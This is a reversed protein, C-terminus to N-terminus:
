ADGGRGGRGPARGGGEGGEGRQGRGRFMERGAERREEDSLQGDGDRDFRSLFEARMQEAEARRRVARAERTEPLQAVQEPTLLSELQRRFTDDVAQRQEFLEELREDPQPTDGGGGQMRAAFREIRSTISAAESAITELELLQNLGAIEAAYATEMQGILAQVEPTVDELAAAASFSRQAFTPGYIRRYAAERFGVEYRGIAEEDLGAEGLLAVSMQQYRLNIDRVTERLRAETRTAEIAVSPDMTRFADMMAVPMTSLHEDRAVLARDLEVGYEPWITALVPDLQEGLGLQRPLLTLDVTEGSLRGAPLMRGRRIEIEVAPLMELQGETLILAMEARFAADLQRRIRDWESILSAIAMSSQNRVEESPRFAQAQERIQQIRAQLEASIEARAAEDDGAERLKERIEGVEERMRRFEQRTEEDIQMDPRSAAMEERIREAEARFGDLYDALLVEIITEQDPDLQLRRDLVELDGREWGSRMLGGFMGGPGGQGGGFMGGPGGQGGPRGEGGGPQGFFGRMGGRGGDQQGRMQRDEGRGGREQASADRVPALVVPATLAALLFGRVVRRTLETRSM